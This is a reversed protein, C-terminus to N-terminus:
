KVIQEHACTYVYSDTHWFQSVAQGLASLPVWCAYPSLVSSIVWMARQVKIIAQPTNEHTLLVATLRYQLCLFKWPWECYKTPSIKSPIFKQPDPYDLWLKRQHQKRFFILWWRFNAHKVTHRLPISTSVRTKMAAKFTQEYLEVVGNQLWISHYVDSVNSGIREKFSELIM